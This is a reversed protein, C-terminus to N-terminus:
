SKVGYENDFCQQDCFFYTLYRNAIHMVGKNIIGKCYHCEKQSSFVCQKNM